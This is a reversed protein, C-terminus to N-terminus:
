SPSDSDRIFSVLPSAHMTHVRLPRATDRKEAKFCRAANSFLLTALHRPFNTAMEKSVSSNCSTKPTQWIERRCSLDLVETWIGPRAGPGRRQQKGKGDSLENYIYIYICVCM